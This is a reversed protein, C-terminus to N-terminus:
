ADSGSDDGDSATDNMTLPLSNIIAITKEIMAKQMNLNEEALAPSYSNNKVLDTVAQTTAQLAAQTQQQIAQETAGVAEISNVISQVLADLAETESSSEAM